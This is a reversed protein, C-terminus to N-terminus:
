QIRFDNSQPDGPKKKVDIHQVNAEPSGDWCWDLLQILAQEDGEALLEVRGDSLNRVSGTIGLEEARARASTRYYVGQVRGEILLRWRQQGM